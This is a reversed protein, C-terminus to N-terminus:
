TMVAKYRDVENMMIIRPRGSIELDFDSNRIAGIMGRFIRGDLLTFTVARGSSKLSHLEHATVAM